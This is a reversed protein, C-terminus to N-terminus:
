SFQRIGHQQQYATYSQILSEPVRPRIATLAADFHRVAVREAKIDDQLAFLAAERCVATIQSLSPLLPFVLSFRTIEAAVPVRYARLSSQMQVNIDNM